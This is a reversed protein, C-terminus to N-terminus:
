HFYQAKPVNYLGIGVPANEFISRFLRESEQLADQARKRETIDETLAVLYQPKGVTDRLLQYRGNGSVIRGDRRVYRNEYEDADRKGEIIAAYRKAGSIRDDPHVIGDWQELARLEEESYGLIERMARNTLHAQAEIGFISIGIQANEFISRFLQESARLKEEARKRETVDVVTVVAGTITGGELIPFSSYDVAVPTGDRRWIVETDICCGEGKKCARYVPCEEIPYVSGDPKHHHMLDHMKRGLVEEARYGILECTARNIFTCNGQLDIGYIGQGTSELLMEMQKATRNRDEQARKSETIDETLSAVYQPRGAADRLLSFRGNAIVISGDRRVFRQEWEDKDHKGQVLEAYREAGFAREDPHIIADWKEVHSLEEGTYGLMEHLARNSFVTSGDIHFFSIGIQANEFISRFFQESAQVSNKVNQQV